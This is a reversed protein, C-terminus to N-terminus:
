EVPKRVAPIDFGIGERVTDPLDGAACKGAFRVLIQPANLVVYLTMKEATQRLVPQYGFDLFQDPLATLVEYSVAATDFSFTERSNFHGSNRM